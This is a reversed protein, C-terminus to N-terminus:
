EARLAEVPNVSAARRAPLYSALLACVGLAAAVAILTSVDWAQVGFLLNRILAAAALSGGLGVTIGVATVFGAEGLILRYVAGREAGLAMRVGIERTRQSVSYAVVGYLGVVGLLLALAAFGGVLWASSRHLFATQSDSIRQAMTFENRVGLNPDIGHIAAALVPLMSAPDQATRVALFLGSETDQDFPAYMAPQIEEQLEGERIDDVVGVIQRLSESSLKPDGITRGVPYEGRFFQKALAQNVIIVRAKSRADGETFFRGSILRARLVKLYDTSITRELAATHEGYWPHGPVRFEAKGCNCTVPLDSAHGVAIVGPLASIREIVRRSLAIRQEEKGYSTQPADIELTAIHEPRFNLDVHLLRYFSKGLLGAGALLVMAIALEVAVLNSGFRKWVTGAATRGGEALDGRLNSVSLRLAPTVSFVAIALLAIVGAFLLVRPHLGIGQWFPLGRLRREPILRFLLPIAAYAAVLAFVVAFAALVVGETVFQRLLRGRSAGLAGRLVMERKRSEARVLLLSAVNVCAILLLLGAGSWLVLLIPRIDGVFADRLPIVLASQGKNSDPYEKELQAAIAKMNAMAAQISVGDKLRAIGYVSRCSRTKECGNPDHITTWFEAARLPFYFDRPLVGIVMYPSDEFLLSQGVIDRRGGFRSQWAGYTLLVTRPAAPTDDEGTFGRGLMPTVGLTSFFGGSVRAGRVAQVGASGKWLYVTADWAELSSFVTNGKKWDLYDQQPLECERCSNSSQYVAALRSANKYPLPQLLAADVFAFIAMSAAMGLALVLIATCAFGPNKRLQRLAFRLDQLISEFSFGAAEHSQQLTNM